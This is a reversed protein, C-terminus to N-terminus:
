RVYGYYGNIEVTVTSNGRQLGITFKDGEYTMRRYRLLEGVIRCLDYPTKDEPYLETKGIKVIVDGIEMGNVPSVSDLGVVTLKGHRLEATFGLNAGTVVMGGVATTSSSGYYSIVPLGGLEGGNGYELLQRYIDCVISVPTVFGTDEVDKSPDSGDGGDSVSMRYTGLGLFHGEMDFLAGGSMGANIASTTRMVPVNVGNSTIIDSSKSIIGDYAAIGMGMANGLAVTYDGENYELTRILIDPTDIIYVEDHDVTLLAMDYLTSYGVLTAKFGDDENYFRVIIDDLNGLVHKNTLVYVKGQEYRMCVGSGRLNGSVVETIAPKRASVVAAIEQKPDTNITPPTVGRRMFYGTLVSSCIGVAICLVSMVIVVIWVLRNGDSRVEKGNVSAYGGSMSEDIEGDHIETVREPEGVSREGRHHPLAKGSTAPLDETKYVLSDNEEAVKIGGEEVRMPANVVPAIKEEDNNM